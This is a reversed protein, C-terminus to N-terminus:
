PGPPPPTAPGGSPPPPPTSGGGVDMGASKMIQELAKNNKKKKSEAEAINSAARKGAQYKEGGVAWHTFKLMSAGIGTKPVGGKNQMTKSIIKQAWNGSELMRVLDEQRKGAKEAIRNQKALFEKNEADNYKSYKEEVEQHKLNNKKVFELYKQTEESGFRGASNNHTRLNTEQNTIARDIDISKGGIIVQKAGNKKREKYEDLTGKIKEQEAFFSAIGSATFKAGKSILEADQESFSKEGLRKHLNELDKISEKRVNEFGKEGVKDKGLDVGKLLKAVGATNRADFSARAGAQGINKLGAGFSRAFAGGAELNKVFGSEALANGARGVTNRGLRATGGFVAGGLRRSGFNMISQAGSAGAAGVSNAAFITFFLFVIILVFNLIIAIFGTGPAEDGGMASLVAKPDVAGGPGAFATFANDAFLFTIYLLIFFVPAYFANRLLLNWWKSFFKGGSPVVTSVIALPSTVMCLFFVLFRIAFMLSAALFVLSTVFMIISGVITLVVWKSIEGPTAFMASVQSPEFLTVIRLYGSVATSISDDAGSKAQLFSNYLGTTAINSVDIILKTFFLSFNIILAVVIIKGLVRKQGFLDGALIIKIASILILFIFIINSLDRFFTWAGNIFPNFHGLTGSLNLITTNIIFDFLFGTLWLIFGWFALIATLVMKIVDVMKNYLDEGINKLSDLAGNAIRDTYSQASSWEEQTTKFPLNTNSGNDEIAYWQGNSVFYYKGNVRNNAPITVNTYTQPPQVSNPPTYTLTGNNPNFLAWGGGGTSAGQSQQLAQAGVEGVFGLVSFCLLFVLLTKTLTEKTFINKLFM